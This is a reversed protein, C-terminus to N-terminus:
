SQYFFQKLHQWKMKYIREWSALYKLAVSKELKDCFM